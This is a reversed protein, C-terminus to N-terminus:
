WSSESEFSSDEEEEYYSSYDENYSDVYDEYIDRFEDLLSDLDFITFLNNENSIENIENLWKYLETSKSLSKNESGELMRFAKIFVRDVVEDKEYFNVYKALDNSYDEALEDLIAHCYKKFSSIELNLGNTVLTRNDM